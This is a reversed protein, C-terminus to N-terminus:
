FGQKVTRQQRDSGDADGREAVDIGHRLALGAMPEAPVTVMWNGVRSM